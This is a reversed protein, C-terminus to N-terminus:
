DSWEKFVAECEAVSVGEVVETVRKTKDREYLDQFQLAGEEFGHQAAFHQTTGCYVRSIRSWLIAGLSMVDPQVTTYLECGQLNYTGLNATAAQIANVEATATADRSHCVSNCASATITADKVIVAGFCEREKSMGSKACREAAVVAQKM